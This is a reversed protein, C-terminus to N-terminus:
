PKTHILTGGKYIKEVPKEAVYASPIDNAGQRVDAM